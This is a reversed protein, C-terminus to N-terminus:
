FELLKKIVFDLDNDIYPEFLGMPSRATNAGDNETAFVYEMKGGEGKRVEGYLVTELKGELQMKTSLKGLTKLRKKLEYGSKYDESHGTLVAFKRKEFGIKAEVAEIHKIIEAYSKPITHYPLRPNNKTGYEERGGKWVPNKNDANLWINTNHELNRM